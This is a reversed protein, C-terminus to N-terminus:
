LTLFGKHGVLFINLLLLLCSILTVNPPFRASSSAKTYPRMGNINGGPGYQCVVFYSNKLITGALNSCMQVGCGIASSNAWVVQTYHGCVGSCSNADFNYNKKESYWSDVFSTVNLAPSAFLNEGAYSFGGVNSRFEGTSHSFNCKTAHAQANTELASDWAMTLMDSSPEDTRLKNHRTVIDSSETSTFGSKIQRKMVERPAVFQSADHAFSKAISLGCMLSVILDWKKLFITM